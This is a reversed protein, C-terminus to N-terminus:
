RNRKDNKIRNYILNIAIILNSIDCKVIESTWYYHNFCTMNIFYDINLLENEIDTFIICNSDRLYALNLLIFGPNNYTLNEKNPVIYKEWGKGYCDKYKYRFVNIFDLAEDFEM